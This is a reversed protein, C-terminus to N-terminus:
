AVFKGTNGLPFSRIRVGTLDFIANALAPAAPPTGPEGVGGLVPNNQLIEVAVDPASNIRMLPYAGYNRQDVQGDKFTVEEGIASSLGMLCGGEMQARINDPDLAIGVDCAIWVKAIKIGADTQHVEVVQAVPTGFSHCFAVGRGVGDPTQGTWGSMDRVAALVKASVPDEPQMLDLRVQLPDAGAAIALEDLFCEHFIANHSNGVSRWFGVPIDLDALHGTVRYNPIAYPQNFLGEVAVKDPGSPAFGLWREMVQQTCSQVAVSADFLVPKGDQVAGRLRAVAGPRYFDHALDEERSYVTQVPVGPLATAIQTAAVMFDIEGRRGFGGGMPPTHLTVRDEHLGAVKACAARGFLPAQNGAWVELGDATVWATANMPELTSHALYPVQYDATIETAGNPLSDAEGDDRMKSNPKTDLAQTLAAFATDTDISGDGMDWDVDIMNVAKMALWTNSAIVALGSDLEVVKDVGDLALAASADYSAVGRAGFPAKRLSAFRMDPLRIDLGYKLTGNTKAPVDLRPMSTGVYRWQSPDRLIVDDPEMQAAEAALDPYPIATGDPAIVQGDQTKLQGVPVSLRNAAAKVLLQRATAGVIRMREFGDKMATSGGTVQLDLLKGVGGLADGFARAWASHEYAKGPLGDALLAHNYYVKSPPGHIVRIDGWAIDLEEAVLAALTTQTGQGMDARPTVIIVGDSDIVIFPSLATEGEALQLPNPRDKKVQWVGFAIGGAVAAAGFLFTRRAITGISAM